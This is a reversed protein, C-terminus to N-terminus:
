NEACSESSVCDLADSSPDEGCDPFPPRPSPGRGFITGLVLVADVITVRADDNADAAKRCDITDGSFVHGLLLLADAVSLRADGNVDARRFVAAKVLPARTFSSVARVEIPELDAGLYSATAEPIGPPEPALLELGFVNGVSALAIPTDFLVRYRVRTNHRSASYVLQFYDSVDRRNAAPNREGVFEVEARTLAAPATDNPLLAEEFREVLRVRASGDGAAGEDGSAGAIEAEVEWAPLTEYTCSGYRVLPVGDLRAQFVENGKLAVWAEEPLPQTMEIPEEGRGRFALPAVVEVELVSGDELAFPQSFTFRYTTVDDLSPLRVVRFTGGELPVGPTRDPGFLVKDILEASFTDAETPLNVKGERLRLVSKLAYEEALGRDTGAESFVGCFVAEAPIELEFTPTADPLEDVPGAVDLLVIPFGPDVWASAADRDRQSMPLYVLPRLSFVASLRTHVNRVEALTLVELPDNGDTLVNFGYSPAVVGDVKENLRRLGGSFLDRTERRLLRDRLEEETLTGFREPFVERLFAEPEPFRSANVFLPPLLTEDDRAPVSYQGARDVPTPGSRISVEHFGGLTCIRSTFPASSVAGASKNLFVNVDTTGKNATALDTTGDRDFDGTVTHRPTHGVSFFFPASLSGDGLGLLLALKSNDGGGTSVVDLNGDDNLDTTLVSWSSHGLPFSTPRAFTGGGLNLFVKVDLTGGSGSILDVTGNGDLDAATVFTPAGLVPIDVREDFVGSGPNALISLRGAGQIAITLDLDGDADLDAVATYTAGNGAEYTTEATFEGISDGVLVQVTGSPSTSVLDVNGDGNLDGPTVSWPAASVSVTNEDFRADGLNRRVRILNCARDAIIVDPNGDHNVDTNTIYFPHCAAEGPLTIPDEFNGDGRNFLFSVNAGGGDVTIIDLDEDGDFDASTLGHLGKGVNYRTDELVVATPERNWLVAVASPNNNILAVDPDGDGDLDGSEIAVAAVRLTAASTFTGNGLGSFFSVGRGDGDLVALDLTDGDRFVGARLARIPDPLLSEIEGFEGGELNRLLQVKFSVVPILDFDGDNDVDGAILRTPRGQVTLGPGAVFSGDGLNLALSVVEADRNAIAVDLDGDEDLDALAAHEPREAVPFDVGPALVANGQNRWVTMVDDTNNLTIIDALGDGTVDGAALYRTFRPTAIPPDSELTGSGLNRHIALVESHLSVLDIDGDGDLDANTLTSLRDLAPLTGAPTLTTQSQGFLIAIASVDVPSRTGVILDDIGDGDLDASSTALPGEPVAFTNSQVGFEIPLGECEDPIGDFDCDASIESRVDETDDRGNLNCDVAAVDPALVVGLFFVAAL